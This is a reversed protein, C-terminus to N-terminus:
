GAPTEYINNYLLLVCRKRLDDNEEFLRKGDIELKAKERATEDLLRRADALEHEYMGKINSVERTVTEQSTSVERTLRSNECELHRVRDIYAALRDNLNQLDFKEQIRSQRTPSLPSSSRGGVGASGAVSPPRSGPRPTSSSQPSQMGSVSMSSSSTVTTKKTKSAM